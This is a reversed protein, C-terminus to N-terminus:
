STPVHTHRADPAQGNRRRNKRRRRVGDGVVELEEDVELFGPENIM